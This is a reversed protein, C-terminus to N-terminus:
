FAISIRIGIAFLLSKQINSYINLSKKTVVSLCVMRQKLASLSCATAASQFRRRRDSLIKMQLLRLASM